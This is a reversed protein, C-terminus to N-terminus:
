RAGGLAVARVRSAHHESHLLEAAYAREAREARESAVGPHAWPWRGRRARVAPSALPQTHTVTTSM